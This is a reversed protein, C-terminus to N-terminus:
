KVWAALDRAKRIQLKQSTSVSSKVGEDDARQAEQQVFCGALRRDGARVGFAGPAGRL